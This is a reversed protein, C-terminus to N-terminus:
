NLNMGAVLHTVNHKMMHLYTDAPQNAGSLADSYLSAGVKVGTDKSLQTLLQPNSMNEIFVARIKERQIQRILQAVQKASPEADTNIGQPALFKVQYQAAFYGFAEHSSIVKRKSPAIVALQQQTWADLTQLEKVYAEANSTYIAAGSADLKSLAAAINRVYFVVNLPNQWAHPDLPEHAHSAHAKDAAMHRAKVGKSAVLIEGKYGASQALKVAWPEFGLGNTVLLQSRLITKADAPRPEFVHADQDAGVLTNVVLREGGVFRVLDGLISFTATVQLKEQAHATSSLLGFTALAFLTLATLLKQSLQHM